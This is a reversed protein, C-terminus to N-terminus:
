DFGRKKRWKVPSMAIAKETGSGLALVVYGAAFGALVLSLHLALTAALSYAGHLAQVAVSTTFFVGVPAVKAAMPQDDPKEAIIHTFLAGGLQFAFLMQAIPTYAGGAFWNLTQPILM